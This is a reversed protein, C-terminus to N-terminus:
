WVRVAGMRVEVKRGQLQAAQGLGVGGLPSCLVLGFNLFGLGPHGRRGKHTLPLLPFM